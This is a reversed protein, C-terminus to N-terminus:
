IGIDAVVHSTGRIEHHRNLDIGKSNRDRLRQKLNYIIVMTSRVVQACRQSIFPNPTYLMAQCPPCKGLCSVM